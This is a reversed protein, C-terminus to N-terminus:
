TKEGGSHHECSLGPKSNMALAAGREQKKSRGARSQSEVAKAGRGQDESSKNSQGFMVTEVNAAAPFIHPFSVCM